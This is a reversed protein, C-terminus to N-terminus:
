PLFDVKLPCIPSKGHCFAYLSAGYADGAAEVRSISLPTSAASFAKFYLKQGKRDPSSRICLVSNDASRTKSEMLKADACDVFDALLGIGGKGLSAVSVGAASCAM